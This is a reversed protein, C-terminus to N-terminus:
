LKNGPKNRAADRRASLWGTAVTLDQQTLAHGAPLVEYTVDAGAAVMVAALRDRGAAPILPDMSGALILVPFGALDPASQPEFPLTVRILVAGALLDPRTLLMAAAINAGNSFGVAIPKALGYAQRAKDVFASLEVTRAKLDDVDFVGEAFRRFFRPMGGELVKGRPSILPAGPALHRGLPLLDNEDGGTGHLLLLPPHGQGSAPVFRHIFGLDSRAATENM